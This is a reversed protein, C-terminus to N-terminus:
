FDVRIAVNELIYKSRHKYFKLLNAVLMLLSVVQKLRQGLTNPWDMRIFCRCSQEKSSFCRVPVLILDFQLKWVIVYAVGISQPSIAIYKDPPHSLITTFVESISTPPDSLSKPHRHLLATSPISSTWRTGTFHVDYPLVFDFVITTPLELYDRIVALPVASGRPHIHISLFTLSPVDSCSQVSRPTAM